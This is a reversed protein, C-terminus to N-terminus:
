VANYLYTGIKLNYINVTLVASFLEIKLFFKTLENFIFIPYFTIFINKIITSVHYQLAASTFEDTLEISKIPTLLLGHHASCKMIM